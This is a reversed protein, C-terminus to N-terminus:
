FGRRVLVAIALMAPRLGANQSNYFSRYCLFKEFELKWFFAKSINEWILQSNPFNRLYNTTTTYLWNNRWFLRWSIGILDNFGTWLVRLCKSRVPFRIVVMESLWSLWIWDRTSNFKAWFWIVMISLWAKQQKGERDEKSKDNLGSM